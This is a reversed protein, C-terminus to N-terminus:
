RHKYKMEVYFEETPLYDNLKEKFMIVILAILLGMPVSLYTAEHYFFSLVVLPSVCVSFIIPVALIMIITKIMRNKRAMNKYFKQKLEYRKAPWTPNYKSGGFETLVLTTLVRGIPVRAIVGTQWLYHNQVADLNEM